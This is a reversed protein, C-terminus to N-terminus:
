CELTGLREGADVHGGASLTVLYRIGDAVETEGGVEAARQRPEDAGADAHVVRAHQGLVPSQHLLKGLAAEQADDAARVGETDADVDGDAGDQEGGEGFEVARPHTLEACPLEVLDGSTGTSGAVVGGPCDNRLRRLM